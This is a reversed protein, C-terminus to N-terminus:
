KSKLKALVIAPKSVDQTVVCGTGCKEIGYKAGSRQTAFLFLLSLGIVANQLVFPFKVNAVFISGFLAVIFVRDGKFHGKRLCVYAVMLFWSYLLVSGLSGVYFLLRLYGVDTGMYNQQPNLPHSFYGDGFLWTNVSSPFVIMNNLMDDTSDSRFGEGGFFNLVFEFSYPLIIDVLFALRDPDFILLVVTLAIVSFVILLLIMLLSILRDKLSVKAFVFLIPCFLFLIVIGTRAVPMISFLILAFCASWFLRDRNVTCVIAIYFACIGCLAQSFSLGDGTISTLGAARFSEDLNSPQIVISSFFARAGPFSVDLIIFFSQLTGVLATMVILSIVPNCSKPLFMVMAYTLPILASFVTLYLERFQEDEGGFMAILQGGCLVLALYGVLIVPWRPVKLEALQNFSIGLEGNALGRIILVMVGIAMLPKILGSHTILLNPSYLIVYLGLLAFVSFGIANRDFRTAETAIM